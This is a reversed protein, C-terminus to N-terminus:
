IRPVCAFIDELQIFIQHAAEPPCEFAHAIVNYETRDEDIVLEEDRNSCAVFTSTGAGLSLTGLTLPNM